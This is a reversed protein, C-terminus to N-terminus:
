ADHQLGVDEDCRRVIDYAEHQGYVVRRKKTAEKSVGDDSKQIAIGGNGGEV